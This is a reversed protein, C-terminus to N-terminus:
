PRKVSLQNAAADLIADPIVMLVPAETWLLALRMPVTGHITRLAARYGALQRLYEPNAAAADRPWNADTKYDVVLLDRETVVLRDIQRRQQSGDPMTVLLPVESLGDSAFVEAFTENGILEVLQRALAPDHGARAVAQAIYGPREAPALGTVQQLLRHVLTGRAVRGPSRRAEREPRPGPGTEDSVPRTLWAPLLAAPRAVVDTTDDRFVPSVGFRWGTGDGIEELVQTLGDKVVNYWCEPKPGQKGHYGCIYLEDRARTMAVYLLRQYEAMRSAGTEAKMRTLAESEFLGSVPWLPVRANGNGLPVMLLPDSTRSDPMAVTDPLIVIPAELGKAGHVTM